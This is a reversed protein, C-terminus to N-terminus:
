FTNYHLLLKTQNLIILIGSPLSKRKAIPDLNSQTLLSGSFRSMADLATRQNTKEIISFPTLFLQGKWFDCLHPVASDHLTTVEAKCRLIGSFELQM